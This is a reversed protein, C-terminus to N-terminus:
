DKREPAKTPVSRSATRATTETEHLTQHCLICCPQASVLTLRRRWMEGDRYIREATTVIWLERWREGVRPEEAAARTDFGFDGAVDASDFLKNM